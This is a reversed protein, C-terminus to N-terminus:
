GDLPDAHGAQGFFPFRTQWVATVAGGGTPQPTQLWDTIRENVRVVHLILVTLGDRMLLCGMYSGMIVAKGFSSTNGVLLMLCGRVEVIGGRRKLVVSIM